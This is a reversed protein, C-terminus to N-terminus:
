RNSKVAQKALYKSVGTVPSRDPQRALYKEVGTKEYGQMAIYREVGTTTTPLSHATGATSSDQGSRSFKFFGFAAAALLLLLYPASGTDSPKPQESLATVPEPEASPKTSDADPGDTESRPQKDAVATTPVVPQEVSVPAQADGSAPNADTDTYTTSPQYEAPLYSQEAVAAFNAQLLVTLLITKSPYAKM